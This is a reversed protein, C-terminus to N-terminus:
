NSGGGGLQSINFMPLFMALVIVGIVAGMFVLMFPEIVTGIRKMTTEVEKQYFEAVHKLMKSLEGTEEGVTIMQITLPPFFRSKEMPGVLLEGERVREKIQSIVRSCTLNDVLREVIDLAILIPVGSEVLIAMQSAFREVIILKFIKGVVPMSFLTKESQHRGPTTRLWKKFLFVGIAIAAVFYLFKEKILRFTGLLVRTIIPLEVNMSSFVTEFRPGVFLAFFSVAGMCVVFLIAPYMVASTITSKFEAQQKLYFGLKNLVVPMTGSAEGVEVLSVWFQNFVRPHEALAASLSIGEEVRKTVRALVKYFNESEIQAQIVELSRLLIVGSELLTTLQNSFTLLDNLEIKKHTFKRPSVSPERHSPKEVRPALIEEIKFVFLGRQQLSEVLSGQDYAEIESSVDKGNSDKAQYRFRPM